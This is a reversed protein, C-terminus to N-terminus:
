QPPGLLPPLPRGEIAAQLNEPRAAWEGVTEGNPLMVHALFAQEFTEIGSEVSELKAKVCLLLGRWKERCAQEWRAYVQDPTPSRRNGTMAMFRKENRAPMAVRIIIRRARMEFVCNVMGNGELIGIADAGYKRLLAKLEAESKEVAVSTGEAYRRRTVAAGGWVGPPPEHGVM